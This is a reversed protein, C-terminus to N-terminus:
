QLAVWTLHSFGNIKVVYAIFDDGNTTGPADGSVITFGSTTITGASGNNTYQIIMSCNNSPPALTHAGGNVAYQMNGDAENPTYTGSSKTGANYPTIAYGVALTSATDTKVITSAAKASTVANDALKGTTVNLDAIKATTVASSDIAWALGGGSVTIDGKDGDSVDPGDAGGRAYEIALSDDAALTGVALLVSVPIVHYAGADTPTATLTFVLKNAPAGVKSITIVDRVAMGDLLASIDAGWRDVPNIYLQTISAATANNGRVKATGPDAGSTGTDWQYPFGFVAIQAASEATSAVIDAHFAVNKVRVETAGSLSVSGGLTTTTTTTSTASISAAGLPIANAGTGGVTSGFGGVTGGSISTSTSSVSSATLGSASITAAKNADSQTAGAARAGATDVATSTAAFRLFYGAAPPLSFHTATSGWPYSRASLWSNLEPWATKLVSQTTETLRIRGAGVTASMSLVVDGIQPMTALISQLSVGAATSSVVYASGFGLWEDSTSSYWAIVPQNVLLDGSNFETATKPRFPKAGLGNFNLTAAGTNARDVIFTTMMGNVLSSGAADSAIEYANGTGTSTRKPAMDSIIEAVRAMMARASNNVTDPDQFEAWNITADATANSAATQSWSYISDTM